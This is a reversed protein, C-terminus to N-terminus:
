KAPSVRHEEELRDMEEIIPDIEDRHDHYYSIGDYISALSLYNWGHVIDEPTDGVRLQRMLWWVALRTGKIVACPGAPRDIIVVHPHETPTEVRM